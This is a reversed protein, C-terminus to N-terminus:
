IEQEPEVNWSEALVEELEIEDEDVPVAAPHIYFAHDGYYTAYQLKGWNREVSASIRSTKKPNRFNLIAPNDLVRLDHNLVEDAIELTEADPEAAAIGRSHSFQGPQYIVDKVTSPYLDSEIRNVVVEGIAIKGDRPQANGEHWILKALLEVDEESYKPIFPLVIEPVEEVEAEEVVELEDEEETETLTNISAAELLVESFTKVETETEEADEAEVTAEISNENKLFEELTVESTVEPVAVAVEEANVGGIMAISLVLAAPIVTMLKKM